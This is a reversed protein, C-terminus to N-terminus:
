KKLQIKIRTDVIKCNKQQPAVMFPNLDLESIQPWDLSLQSLKLLSSVIVTFDVKESGRFGKLIQYGQTEKIMEWADNESLPALRFCVDKYVEVFIGGMGFM